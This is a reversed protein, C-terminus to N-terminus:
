KVLLMKKTISVNNNKLTYYYIGSNFKSANFSINHMGANLNKDILNAVEQGAANFVSLQIDGATKNYFKITTAPNFPNPYNQYLIMDDVLNNMEEDIGNTKNITIDDIFLKWMQDANYQIAIYVEQNRYTELNYSFPTWNASLGTETGITVTFDDPQNGTTSLLVNFSEPYSNSYSRAYINLLNGELEIKDTILWDNNPASSNYSIMVYNSGSLANEPDTVIEWQKDDGDLNHVTWGEPLSSSEDFSQYYVTDDDIYSGQTKKCLIKNRYNFNDM